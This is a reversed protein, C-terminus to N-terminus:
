AVALPNSNHSLMTKAINLVLLVEAPKAFRLHDLCTDLETQTISLKLIATGRRTLRGHMIKVPCVAQAM